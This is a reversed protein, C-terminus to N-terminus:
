KEIQEAMKKCFEEPSVDGSYLLQLLSLYEGADDASMLTDFWLTFSTAEKCLSAIKQTMANIGTAEYDVTWAPIGVGDLYAYKSVGKAIEFCAEAALDAHESSKAVMLTDAAGGMYDTIKANASNVVPIAFCDFDDPNGVTESSYISGAMWSGTIYMPVTGAYFMESAEDNSNASASELFAGMKVLNTLATASKIFDASNYSVGKGTIAAATNVPGASKLTLGDHIMALVWTEKASNGIPTIGNDIFKQCVNVFEEYTSPVSAGVKDFMAKNYFCLSVPTVYAVGYLKDNYTANGLAAKSIGSEYKGYYSDLCLVRDAAVFDASFGGGWTYFIDPLENSSVAAKIKQKYSENEFTQMEIKVDPHTAEFDAIAKKYANNFSDSETAISWLVLKTKGDTDEKTGACGWLGFVMAVTLLSLILMKMKRM